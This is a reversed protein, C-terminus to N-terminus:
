RSGGFRQRKPMSNKKERGGLTSRNTKSRLEGFGCEQRPLSHNLRLERGHMKHTRIVALSLAVAKAEKEGDGIM